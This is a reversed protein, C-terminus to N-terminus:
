YTVKGLTPNPDAKGSLGVGLGVGVVVVVAAGVGVWLWPNKVLPRKRPPPATAVLDVAAPHPASTEPPPTTQPNAIAQKLDDIHRRVEDVNPQDPYMRAYSQYLMLARPKNGALRHAQAANFLLAPDPALEYAAEYDNAAEAFKGLAYAATAHRYHAKADDIADAHATACTLLTVLALVVRGPM